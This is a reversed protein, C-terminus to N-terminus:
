FGYGFYEILEDSSFIPGKNNTIKSLREKTLGDRLSNIGNESKFYELTITKPNKSSKKVFDRFTAWNIDCMIEKASYKFIEKSTGGSVFFKIEPQFPTNENIWKLETDDKLQLFGFVKITEGKHFLIIEDFAIKKGNSECVSVYCSLNKSGGMNNFNLFNAVSLIDFNKLDENNNTLEFSYFVYNFEDIKNRDESNTTKIKLIKEFKFNNAVLDKTPGVYNIYWRYFLLSMVLISLVSCIIKLTNSSIETIGFKSILYEISYFLAFYILLLGGILVIFVM